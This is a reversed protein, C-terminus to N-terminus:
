ENNNLFERADGIVVDFFKEAVKYEDSSLSTEAHDFWDAFHYEIGTIYGDNDIDYVFYDAPGGTSLDIRIQRIVEASLPMEQLTTEAAEARLYNNAENWADMWRLKKDIYEIRSDLHEQIREACTAQRTM